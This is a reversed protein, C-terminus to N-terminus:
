SSEPPSAPCQNGTGCKRRYSLFCEDEGHVPECHTLHFRQSLFREPHPSGTATIACAGGFLTHAAVTLHFEDIADLEALARVLQGGGECHLHRVQFRDALSTLFDALNGRHITAGAIDPPDGAASSLLHIAGGPTRFVPHDTRFVGSTSAVCRLPQRAAGPVTLTMGDAELTARGVLLADASRRLELLRRHDARSTWGSRFPRAPSIKGDISMALNTSIWPRPMRQIHFVALHKPLCSGADHGFGDKGFRGDGTMSAANEPPM